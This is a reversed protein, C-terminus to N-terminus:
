QTFTQKTKNNQVTHINLLRLTQTTHLTDCDFYARKKFFIVPFLVLTRVTLSCAPKHIHLGQAM